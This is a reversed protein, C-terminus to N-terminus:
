SVRAGFIASGVRLHTAGLKVACEFDDSMGMSLFTLRCDKAVQRLLAFHPSPEHNEPPICMLGSIDLGYKEQCQRVFEPAHKPAVGSKQPENGTNVQIFLKPRSSTKDIAVALADALSERDLSHIAQFM